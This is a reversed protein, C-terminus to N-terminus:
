KEKIYDTCVYGKKGSVKVPVWTLNDSKIEDGTVECTTDKPITFITDHSLGPNKRLRLNHTTVVEKTNKVNVKESTETKPAEQGNTVIVIHGRTKTCLIDGTQLETNSTVTIPENFM